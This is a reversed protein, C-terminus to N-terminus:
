PHLNVIGIDFEFPSDGLYIGRDNLSLFSLSEQRKMHSTVENKLNYKHIFDTFSMIKM